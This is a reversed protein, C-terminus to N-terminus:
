PNPVEEKEDKRKKNYKRSIEEKFDEKVNSEKLV